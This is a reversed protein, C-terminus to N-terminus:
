PKPENTTKEVDVIHIEDSFIKYEPLGQEDYSFSVSLTPIANIDDMSITQVGTVKQSVKLNYINNDLANNPSSKSFGCFDDVEIGYEDLFRWTATSYGTDVNNLELSKHRKAVLLPQEDVLTYGLDDVILQSLAEMHGAGYKVCIRKRANNIDKVEHTLVDHLFADRDEILYKNYPNSFGEDDSFKPGDDGISILFNRTFIIPIVILFFIVLFPFILKTWLPIKKVSEIMQERDLDAWVQRLSVDSYCKGCDCSKKVTKERARDPSPKVWHNQQGLSDKRRLFKPNGSQPFLGTRWAAFTQLWKVAARFPVYAGEFLVVDSRMMTLWIATYFPKSGVHVM